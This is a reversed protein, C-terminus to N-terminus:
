WELQRARGLARAAELIVHAVHQLAELPAADPYQISIGQFRALASQASPLASLPARRVVKQEQRGPAFVHDTCGLIGVRLREGNGPYENALYELLDRILDRRRDVVAKAGGLELACVLDVPGAQVDVRDPIGALVEQWPRSLRTVGHPKTFRVQGPADLVARVEYVPEDPVPM